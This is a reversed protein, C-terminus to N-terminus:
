TESRPPAPKQVSAGGSAAVLLGIAVCVCGGYIWLGATSVQAIGVGILALGVLIILDTSFAQVVGSQWIRVAMSRFRSDM